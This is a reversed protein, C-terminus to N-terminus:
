EIGKASFLRKIAKLQIANFNASRLRKLVRSLSMGGIKADSFAATIAARKFDNEAIDLLAKPVEIGADGARRSATRPTEIVGALAADASRVEARTQDPDKETEKISVPGTASDSGTPTQPPDTLPRHRTRSRARHSETTDETKHYKLTRRNIKRFRPLLSPWKESLHRLAAKAYSPNCCQYGFTAPVWWGGSIVPEVMENRHLEELASELRKAPLATEIRLSTLTGDYVGPPTQRPSVNLLLYVLRANASLGEFRPSLIMENPIRRWRDKM